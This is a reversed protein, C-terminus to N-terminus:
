GFNPVETHTSDSLIKAARTRRHGHVQSTPVLASAHTGIGGARPAASGFGASRASCHATLTIRIKPCGAVRQTEHIGAGPSLRIRDCHERTYALAAVLLFVRSCLLGKPRDYAASMHRQQNNRGVKGTIQGPNMALEDYGVVRTPDHLCFPAARPVKGSTM